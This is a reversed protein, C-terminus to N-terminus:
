RQQDEIASMFLVEFQEAAAKSSHHKEMWTRGNRGLRERREPDNKLTCIAEVLAAPDEPLVCLGAQSREILNWVDSGEDVSALVPRASSLISYTKSPLSSFGMGKKLVVLSVDATALVEPLRERPQFPLFRVNNLTAAQSTLQEKSAGDGVFLYIIELEHTLQRAAELVTNLAQTLGHNGAYLVIFKDNWGHECSFSNQRPMPRILEIDLWPAIVTVKEPTINHHALDALFGEGLVQIREAHNLCFDELFSVAQIVARNHFLGM